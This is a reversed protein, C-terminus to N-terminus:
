VCSFRQIDAHQPLAKRELIHELMCQAYYPILLSGKSGFGNFIGIHKVKPHFGLLPQKDMTNPRIGAQHQILTFDGTNQQIPMAKLSQMLIEKAHLSPKEDLNQTEYTAGIKCTNPQTPLLWKGQNIMYEPLRQPSALTIIEGKAPQFPLYSFYPCHMARWGQCLIITKNKHQELEPAHLEADIWHGHTKFYTHLTDLLRGTDLYGTQQQMVADDRGDIASLYPQYRQDDKRKQWAAYENKRKLVRLMPKPTYFPHHFIQELSQYFDKAVPLLTEIHNQLVLRQGTVPNIIGAAVRSASTQEPHQFIQVHEGAQILKWALISGALGAGIINIHHTGKSIIAIGKMVVALLGMRPM